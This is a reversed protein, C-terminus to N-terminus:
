PLQLARRIDELHHDIHQYAWRIFVELRDIGHVPHRGARDLDSESMGEVIRITEARVEELLALAADLGQDRHKAVQSRNFREVDFDEPTGSGGELLNNFLWHMSREITAFHVLLDRARWQGEDAYVTTDLQDPTLSRFFAATQATNERLQQAIDDTRGPM